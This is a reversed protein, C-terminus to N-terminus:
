QGLTVQNKHFSHYPLHRLPIIGKTLGGLPDDEETGYRVNADVFHLMIRLPNNPWRLKKSDTRMLLGLSHLLMLIQNRQNQRAAIMQMEPAADRSREHTSETFLKFFRKMDEDHSREAIKFNKELAVYGDVHEDSRVQAAGDGVNLFQCIQKHQKWDQKQCSKPCYQVSSPKASSAVNSGPILMAPSATRPCSLAISYVITAATRIGLAVTVDSLDLDRPRRISFTIDSPKAHQTPKKDRHKTCVFRNLRSRTSM